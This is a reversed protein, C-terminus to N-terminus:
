STRKTEEPLQRSQGTKQRATEGTAGGWVKRPHKEKKESVELLFTWEKKNKLKKPKSIHGRPKKKPL